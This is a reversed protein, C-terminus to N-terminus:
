VALRRWKKAPPRRITPLFSCLCGPIRSQWSLSGRRGMFGAVLRGIGTLMSFLKAGALFGFLITLTNKWGGLNDKLELFKDRLWKFVKKAKEIAPEWKSWDILSKGGEKWTKY